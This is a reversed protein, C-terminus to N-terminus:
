DVDDTAAQEAPGDVDITPQQTANYVGVHATAMLDRRRAQYDHGIRRYLRLSDVSSWRVFAQVEADSSDLAGLACAVWVRKSHFTKGARRAPSLTARMVAALTDDILSGTWRQAGDTTFLAARLRASGTCPYELEYDIAAAAFSMPNDRSFLSTVLSPGFKTGDADAKSINVAVTVRDRGPVMAHLQERTPDAIPVENLVIQLDSRRFHLDAYGVLERKRPGAQDGYCDVLRWGAWFQATQLRGRVRTAPPVAKMAVNDAATFPEARVPVAIGYDALRKRTLGRMLHAVAKNSVLTHGRREHRRRIHGLVGRVSDVRPAKDTRRRPAMRRWVYM